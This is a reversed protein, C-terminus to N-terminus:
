EEEVFEIYRPIWYQSKQTVIRKIGSVTIEDPYTQLAERAKEEAEDRSSATVVLSIEKTVIQNVKARLSYQAM